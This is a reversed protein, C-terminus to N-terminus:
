SFVAFYNIISNEFQFINIPKYENKLTISLWCTFMDNDDGQDYHLGGGGEIQDNNLHIMPYVRTIWKYDSIIEFKKLENTIVKLM